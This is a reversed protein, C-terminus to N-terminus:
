GREPSGGLYEQYAALRLLVQQSAPTVGVAEGLWTDLHQAPLEGPQEVYVLHWLYTSPQLPDAEAM